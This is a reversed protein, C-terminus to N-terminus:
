KSQEAIIFACLRASIKKNSSRIKAQTYNLHWHVLLIALILSVCLNVVSSSMYCM